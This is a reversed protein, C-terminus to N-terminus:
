LGFGLFESVEVTMGKLNPFASELTSTRLRALILAFNRSRHSACNAAAGWGGGGLLGFRLFALLSTLGVVSTGRLPSFLIRLPGGLFAGGGAGMAGTPFRCGGAVLAVSVPAERFIGGKM